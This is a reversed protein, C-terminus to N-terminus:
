LQASEGMLLQSVAFGPSMELFKSRVSDIHGEHWYDNADRGLEHLHTLIAQRAGTELCFRCFADRLPPPDALASGRGLWLHAFVVDIEPFIPLQATGYNRTDGPFLWRRGNCEILYGLAPVGRLTGDETTEWHLGNFPLVRIGYLDIPTLPVPVITNEPLLGTQAIVNPLMFEPVVWKIPFYSLASLLDLDLHDKHNHTLLVFCLNRLDRVVDVPPASKLRWNLTLPDIAWRTDNTRFIYNASYSLWVRDESDPSNWEAIIKEWHAPYQVLAQERKRRIREQEESFRDMNTDLM